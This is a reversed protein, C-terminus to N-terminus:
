GEAQNLVFCRCELGHVFYNEKKNKSLFLAKPGGYDLLNPATGPFGQGEQVRRKSDFVEVFVVYTCIDLALPYHVTSLKCFHM